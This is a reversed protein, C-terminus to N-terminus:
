KIRKGQGMITLVSDIRKLWGTMIAVNSFHHQYYEEISILVDEFADAEPTEFGHHWRRWLNVIMYYNHDFLNQIDAKKCTLIGPKGVVVTVDDLDEGLLGKKGTM